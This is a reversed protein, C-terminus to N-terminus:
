SVLQTYFIEYDCCPGSGAQMTKKVKFVDMRLDGFEDGDCTVLTHTKGDVLASIASIKSDLQKKSKARLQGKQKIKRDRGGLDISVVGDQGTAGREVFARKLSDAEIDLQCEDFLEQGDLTTAM